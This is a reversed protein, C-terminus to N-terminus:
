RRSGQLWVSAALALRHPRSLRVPGATSSPFGKREIKDLLARYIRGMAEAPRLLARESRPLMADARDYYERACAAYHTLLRRLPEGSEGRRISAVNVGFHEVDDAPLYIRGARADEGVDRLVNTLQVAIGLREAYDFSYPHQAGLIRVVLLGVTSAVRYGYLLLEEYSEITEGTLDSEVGRLLDLFLERPLGFRQVTDALAIGVPHEAKSQYACELERRWQALLEGRDGRIGPQDAIDDAFRCFAYVAHLGARREAPLMWFAAAFSSGSRRTTKACYRYASRLEM